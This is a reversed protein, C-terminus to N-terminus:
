SGWKILLYGCWWGQSKTLPLELLVKEGRFQFMLNRTDNSSIMIPLSSWYPSRKRIGTKEIRGGWNSHSWINFYFTALLKGITAWFTAVATKVYFTTNEFLWKPWKLVFNSLFFKWFDGLRTVSYVWFYIKNKTVEEWFKTGPPFIIVTEFKM